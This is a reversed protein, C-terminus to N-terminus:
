KPLPKRAVVLGLVDNDLVQEHTAEAAAADHGGAGVVGLDLRSREGGRSRDLGIGYIEQGPEDLLVYRLLWRSPTAVPESYGGARLLWRSPTAVPESYGGARLLWRSPTAVPESDGAARPLCLRRGARWSGRSLVWRRANSTSWSWAWVRSM